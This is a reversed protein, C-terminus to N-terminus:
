TLHDHEGRVWAAYRQASRRVVARADSEVVLAFNDYLRDFTQATVTAAVREVVAASLPLLNPYSRMFSVWGAQPLAKVTDGALLVGRGQAGAAWVAVASGPFHGGPQLLRIGPLVEFPESWCVIEGRRGWRRVWRRDAQSVHVTAGFARAWELQCGYMHPHSAVVASVGGLERVAAVAADDLFGPVDWLLNGQPTRVLLASQGIDARPVAQLAWCGPELETVEVRCGESAREALSTWRQGDAPVYQREDACIACVEEGTGNEVGCTACLTWADDDRPM